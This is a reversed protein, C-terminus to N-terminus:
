AARTRTKLAKRLKAYVETPDVLDQEDARIVIWGQAKLEKDKPDPASTEQCELAVRQEPWAFNVKRRGRVAYQCEPKPFGCDALMLGFASQLPTEPLGTAMALLMAAQRTGRRDVRAALRARVDAVLGPRDRPRLERLAEDTAALAMRRPASCLLDAITLDLKLVRLEDIVTVDDEAVDGQHVVLGLRSRIRHAYPMRIHVVFGGVATCGHLAAATPGAIVGLGGTLLMAGACRTRLDLVRQADLLVGRGFGILEGTEVATRVRGDGLATRATRYTYAGHLGNMYIM